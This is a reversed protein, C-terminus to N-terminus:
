ASTFGGDVVINQGTIYSNNESSLFLVVESIEKVKALRGLPIDKVIADIEKSNLIRRTLETDVFGPSVSNVQINYPAMDLAVAKTFGILGWKTSSYSARQSKSVVGFISAINIIKGKKKHKMKKLVEKTVIFPGRLNVNNLEDWDKQSIETILDIKNIGANNILVDIKEIAKIKQMFQNVSDDSLFDLQIYEIEKNQHLLKSDIQNKKKTGTIIIQGGASHFAKCLSKGIGSTGGTILVTKKKFSYHM